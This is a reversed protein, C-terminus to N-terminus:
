RVDRLCLFDSTLALLVWAAELGWAPTWFALTMVGISQSTSVM